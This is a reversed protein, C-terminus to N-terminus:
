ITTATAALPRGWEVAVDVRITARDGAIDVGVKPYRRGVMADLGSGAPVVGNVETVAVTAVKEVVRPAITLHGRSRVEAADRGTDTGLPATVVVDHDARTAPAELTSLDAPRDAVAAVV